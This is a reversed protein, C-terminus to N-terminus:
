KEGEKASSAKSSVPLNDLAERVRKEDEADGSESRAQLGAAREVLHAIRAATVSAFPVYVGEVDVGISVDGSGHEVVQVNAM